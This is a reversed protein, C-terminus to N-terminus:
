DVVKNRLAVQATIVIETNLKSGMVQRSCTWTLNILKVQNLDSTPYFTVNTSTVIPVKNYLSFKWADCGTLYTREPQGTKAMTVTQKTPYYTIKTWSGATANTFLLYSPNNTSTALLNSSNRIERSIKDIAVRSDGNMETYNGMMMFMRSTFVALLVVALILVSAAFTTIALEVLTFGARGGSRSSLTCRMKM